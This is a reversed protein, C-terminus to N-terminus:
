IKKSKLRLSNTVVSVSSLAMAAGAFMPNLLFGTFPYLIGAAIPIGIVNYIFAWFLNQRITKVTEKSLHIAKPIKLLDSSIITMDAVDMAIDSGKGMAISVDAQALAASDNIGDGVMAVKKGQQQLEKVLSAKEEPLVGAKYNTIGLQKALDAAVKENDGTFIAVDIGMKQLQHIAQISTEKIKDTISVAAFARNEDAFIAITRAKDMATHIKDYLENSIHINKSLIFSESGIFYKKNQYTGEIGKGSIQEVKIDDLLRADSQMARTVAEALPHESHHEVSYFIDRHLPGSEASWFFYEVEPRGETITGTKDLVVVDLHKANELSKADKILIGSEAGKGIGVMIATPTALGLACPCAIVLVTVMAMLGYVFGQNGGFIMWVVLSLVAIGIVIPVFVAAIKDVLGQVPAKSGQAEDVTRIIHALLTDKGVKSARLRFSGKQNMTGAFVSDGSKKEVPIPEGSLMSEDVFSMGETVVGDVAVREGPKVLVIDNMVVEDIPIQTPNDNRFVTVTSPQLGMLKRIAESTNGKARAELMKGLLIFTIVVGVSEFYVHPELGRSTWFEPFIMNFTSFLYAIGTSLAVLTDMNASKHKAQRWAGIFFRRGAIFLIPTSLLLMAINAYPAHMYFMGIIVLPISLIGSWLTQRRLKDYNEKEIEQLKKVSAREEEILMDYGVEQLATKMEDANTISPIYTIRGKGNGYNVSADLVGPVFGLINQTSSACAACTMNLIPYNLSSTSVEVGQQRIKEVLDQIIESADDEYKPEISIQLEKGELQMETIRKDQLSNIKFDYPIKYLPIPYTM